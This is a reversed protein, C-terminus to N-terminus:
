AKPLHKNMTKDFLSSYLIEDPYEMEEASVTPRKAIELQATFRWHRVGYLQPGQYMEFFELNEYERIGLPTQIPCDFKLTGSQLTEWYFGEFVQAEAETLLFQVSIISPTNRMMIEKRQRGSGLQTRTVNDTHQIGYGERLPLPMGPPYRINAM